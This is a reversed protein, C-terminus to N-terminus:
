TKKKKPGTTTAKMDKSTTEPPEWEQSRRDGQKLKKKEQIIWRKNEIECAEHWVEDIKGVLVKNCRKRVKETWTRWNSCGGRM